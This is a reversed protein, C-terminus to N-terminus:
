KIFRDITKILENIKADGKGEQCAGAVCSEIHRKMVILAVQELARRIATTQDILDICYQGEEVMRMLGRVQGEIRRLRRLSNEKIEDNIM